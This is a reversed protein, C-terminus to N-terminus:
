GASTGLPSCFRAHMPTHTSITLVVGVAVLWDEKLYSIGPQELTELGRWFPCGGQIAHARTSAIFGLERLPRSSRVRPSVDLLGDPQDRGGLPCASGCGGALEKDEVANPPGGEEGVLTTVMEWPLGVHGVEEWWQRQARHSVM